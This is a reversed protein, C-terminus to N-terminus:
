TILGQLVSVLSLLNQILNAAAQSLAQQAQTQQNQENTLAQVSNNFVSNKANEEQIDINVKNQDNRDNQMRQVYNGQTAVQQKKVYEIALILVSITHALAQMMQLQITSANNISANIGRFLAEGVPAGLTYSYAGHKKGVAPNKGGLADHPNQTMVSM